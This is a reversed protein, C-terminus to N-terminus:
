RFSLNAVIFKADDGVFTVIRGGHVDRLGRLTERIVSLEYGDAQVTEVLRLVATCDGDRLVGIGQLRSACAEHLMSGDSVRWMIPQLDLPCATASRAFKVYLM